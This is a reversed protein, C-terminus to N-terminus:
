IDSSVAVRLGRLTLPDIEQAPGVVYVSSAPMPHGVVTFGELLRSMALRAECEGYSSAEVLVRLTNRFGGKEIKEVTVEYM